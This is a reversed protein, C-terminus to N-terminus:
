RRTLVRTKGSGAGAVVVLPGADHLVAERQPGNLDAVLDEIAAAMSAALAAADPPVLGGPVVEGPPVEGSMVGGSLEELQPRGGLAPLDGLLDWEEAGWSEPARPPLSSM